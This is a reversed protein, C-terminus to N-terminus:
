YGQDKWNTKKMWDFVSSYGLTASNIWGVCKDNVDYVALVHGHGRLPVYSHSECKIQIEVDPIFVNGNQTYALSKM